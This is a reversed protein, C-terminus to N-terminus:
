TKKKKGYNSVQDTWGGMEREPGRKRPYEVFLFIGTCASLQSFNSDSLAFLEM